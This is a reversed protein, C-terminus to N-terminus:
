LYRRWHVPRGDRCGHFRRRYAGVFADRTVTPLDQEREANAMENHEAYHALARCLRSLAASEPPYGRRRLASELAGLCLRRLDYCVELRGPGHVAVSIVGDIDLVAACAERLSETRAAGALRIVRRKAIPASDAM